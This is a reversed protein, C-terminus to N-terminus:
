DEVGGNSGEASILFAESIILRRSRAEEGSSRSHRSPIISDTPAIPTAILGLWERLEKRIEPNRHWWHSDEIITRLWDLNLDNWM